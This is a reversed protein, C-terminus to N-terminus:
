SIIIKGLDSSFFKNMAAKELKLWEAADMDGYADDEFFKNYERYEPTQEIREIEAKRGGELYDTYEKTHRKFLETSLTIYNSNRQYIGEM